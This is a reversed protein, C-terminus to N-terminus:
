LLLLASWTTVELEPRTVAYNGRVAYQAAGYGVIGDQTPVSMVEAYVGVTVREVAIRGALKCRGGTVSGVALWIGSLAPM